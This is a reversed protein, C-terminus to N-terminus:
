PHAGRARARLSWLVCRWWLVWLCYFGASGLIPGRGWVVAEGLSAPPLERPRLCLFQESDLHPLEMALHGCGLGALARVLVKGPQWVRPGAVMGGRYGQHTAEMEAHWM